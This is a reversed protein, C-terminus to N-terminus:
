NEKKSAQNKMKIYDLQRKYNTSYKEDFSSSTYIILPNFYDFKRAEELADTLIKHDNKTVKFKMYKKTLSIESRKFASVFIDNMNKIVDKNEPQLKYKKSGIIKKSDGANNKNYSLDICVKEYDDQLYYPYRLINMACEKQLNKFDDSSLQMKNILILDSLRCFYEQPLYCGNVKFYNEILAELEQNTRREEWWGTIANYSNKAKECGFSGVDYIANGITKTADIVQAVFIIGAGVKVADELSVVSCMLSQNFDYAKGCIFILDNSSFCIKNLVILQNSNVENNNIHRLLVNIRNKAKENFSFKQIKESMAGVFSVNFIHCFILFAYVCSFHSTHAKLINMTDKMSHRSTIM